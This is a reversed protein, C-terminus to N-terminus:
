VMPLNEAPTPALPPATPKKPRRKKLARLEGLLEEHGAGPGFRKATEYVALASGYFESGFLLATDDVGQKVHALLSSLALLTERRSKAAEIDEVALQRAVLRADQKALVLARAAFPENRKGLRAGRSRDQPKLNQLFTGASVVARVAADLADIQEQGIKNLNQNEFQKTKKRQQLPHEM